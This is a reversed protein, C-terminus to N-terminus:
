GCFVIAAAQKGPASGKKQRLVSLPYSMNDSIVAAREKTISLPPTPTITALSHRMLIPLRSVPFLGVTARKRGM